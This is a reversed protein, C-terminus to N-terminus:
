RTNEKEKRHTDLLIAQNDFIGNSHDYIIYETQTESDVITFVTIKGSIAHATLINFRGAHATKEFNEDLTQLYTFYLVLGTFIIGVASLWIVSVDFRQPPNLNKWRSPHLANSISQKFTPWM